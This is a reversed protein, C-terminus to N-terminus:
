GLAGNPIYPAMRPQGRLCISAAGRLALRADLCVDVAWQQEATLWNVEADATSEALATTLLRRAADETTAGLWLTGEDKLLAFGRGATDDVTVLPVHGALFPIDPTM